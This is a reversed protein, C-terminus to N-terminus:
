TDVTPYESVRRASGGSTVVITVLCTVSSCATLVVIGLRAESGPVGMQRSAAMAVSSSSMHPSAMVPADDADRRLCRQQRSFMNRRKRAAQSSRAALLDNVPAQWSFNRQRESLAAPSAYDIPSDWRQQDTLGGLPVVVRMM